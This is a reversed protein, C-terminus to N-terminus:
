NDEKRYGSNYSLKMYDPFPGQGSICMAFLVGWDTGEYKRKKDIDKLLCVVKIQIFYLKVSKQKLYHKQTKM